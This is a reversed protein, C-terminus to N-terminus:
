SSAEMAGPRIVYMDASTDYLDLAIREVRNRVWAREVVRLDHSICTLTMSIM